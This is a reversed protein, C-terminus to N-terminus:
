PRASLIAGLWRGVLYSSTALPMCVRELEPRLRERALDVDDWDHFMLPILQLPRSRAIQGLRSFDCRARCSAQNLRRVIALEGGNLRRRICEDSRAPGRSWESNLAQLGQRVVLRRPAVTAVQTDGTERPNPWRLAVWAICAAARRHRPTRIGNMATGGEVPADALPPLFLPRHNSCGRLAAQMHHQRAYKLSPRPDVALAARLSDEFLIDARPMCVSEAWTVLFPTIAHSLETRSRLSVDRTSRIAAPGPAGDELRDPLRSRARDLSTSPSPVLRDTRFLTAPRSWDPDDKRASQRLGPSQRGTLLDVEDTGALWAASAHIFFTASARPPSRSAVCDTTARACTCRRARASAEVSTEDTSAPGRRIAARLRLPITFGAATARAIRSAAAIQLLSEM